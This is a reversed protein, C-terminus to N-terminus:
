KKPHHNGMGYGTHQFLYVNIDNSSFRSEVKNLMKLNWLNLPIVTSFLARQLHALIEM